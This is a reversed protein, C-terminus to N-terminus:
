HIISTKDGSLNYLIMVQVNAKNNVALPRPLDSFSYMLEMENIARLPAYYCCNGDVQRANPSTHYLARERKRQAMRNSTLDKESNM